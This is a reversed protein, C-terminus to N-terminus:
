LAFIFCNEIGKFMQSIKTAMHWMCASIVDGM